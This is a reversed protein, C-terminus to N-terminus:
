MYGHSSMVAQMNSGEWSGPRRMMQVVDDLLMKVLKEPTLAGSSNGDRDQAMGLFRNIFEDQDACTEVTIKM